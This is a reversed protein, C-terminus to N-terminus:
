GSQTNGPVEAFQEVCKTMIQHFDELTQDLSDRDLTILPNQMWTSQTKFFEAAGLWLEKYPEFEDM